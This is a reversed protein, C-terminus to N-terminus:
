PWKGEKVPIDYKVDRWTFVDKQPPIANTGDGEAGEKDATGSAAAAEADDAATKSKGDKQLYAPVHGRRFVLVEATSSTSSNLETAVFYITMFFILFAWLIGYNRWVHSYTYNYSEKIFADGSVTRQGAVAGVVSCIFSDGNAGSLNDPYAPIFQSCIFDRGHFENAILIEFAYYVPNIWKIWSFWPHMYADPLVFGTYVVLALVMVGALSMAQSVTKTVAALTRFVASMVFVATYVVMLYIFFQSATYRLGALFYLIVNFVVALAFKVPIDSVIGAFAETFPHYFAYSKQKEIIPRQAYLANIESIAILANLLVAFFLTSGKAFFGATANPTGFFISGVVLAMVAQGILTTATSAIDGWIRQYARITNLKIQMPISIMYSSKHRSHKAQQDSKADRFQQLTGDAGEAPFDQEHQKIDKQLEAYEESKQWYAEFEDPTRPVKNEMGDRAQRESPNTVSTLFDGTTQRPPCYWGQREFFARAKSVHGFFIQRGEYLVIAKDFTDYIAQSAQYIAVAHASGGLDATLRLSQVFKLATASDLGRTSNDWAALPSGSLAMEAISVRKREGGSVGRVFDDGVKTNYTHSLGYVAMIVSTIHKAWEKRSAGHIRHSPTRVSAAFELTQGVTLHPFHKDVEQNYVVEGKFEKMMQKQSIGNYHVESGSVVNLGHLEGCMSKLLTSCGSGPRGLVILLEGSKLVGNFNNLIRKEPARHMSISEGLRFPAMLLSGVNQQLKLAAGRGTVNLNKFIIGARRIKFEDEDLDRIFRKLWKYLDFNKHSPDFVPDDDPIGTITEVKELDNTQKGSRTRSLQSALRTLQARDGHNIPSFGGETTSSASSEEAEEVPAITSASDEAEERKKEEPEPAMYYQTSHQQQSLEPREGETHDAM